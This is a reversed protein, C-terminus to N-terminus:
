ASCRSSRTQSPLSSLPRYWRGGCITLRLSRYTASPLLDQLPLLPILNLETISQYIGYLCSMIAANRFENRLKHLKERPRSVHKRLTLIWVHYQGTAKVIQELEIKQSLFITM